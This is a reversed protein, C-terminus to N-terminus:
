PFAANSREEMHQSRSLGLGIIRWSQCVSMSTIGRPIYYNLFKIGWLILVVM